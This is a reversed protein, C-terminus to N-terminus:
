QFQCFRVVRSITDGSFPDIRVAGYAKSDEIKHKLFECEFAAAASLVFEEGDNSQVVIDIPPPKADKGVESLKRPLADAPM